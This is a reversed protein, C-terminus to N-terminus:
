CDHRLIIYFHAVPIYFHKFYSIVLYICIFFV